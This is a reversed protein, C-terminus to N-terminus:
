IKYTLVQRKLCSPSSRVECRRAFRMEAIWVSALSRELEDIGVQAEAAITDKIQIIEEALTRDSQEEEEAHLLEDHGNVPRSQHSVATKAEQVAAEIRAHRDAESAVLTTQLAQVLGEYLKYCASVNRRSEQLEALAFAM